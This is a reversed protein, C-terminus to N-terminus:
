VTQCVGSVREVGSVVVVEEREVLRSGGLVRGVREVDVGALVMGELTVSGGRWDWAIGMRAGATKRIGGV